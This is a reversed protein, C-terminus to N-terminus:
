VADDAPAEEPEVPEDSAPDVEDGDSGFVPIPTRMPSPRRRGPWRPTSSPEALWPRKTAALRRRSPRSSKMPRPNAHDFCVLYVFGQRSCTM